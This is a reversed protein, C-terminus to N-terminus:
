FMRSGRIEGVPIKLDEENAPVVDSFDNDPNWSNYVQISPYPLRETNTLYYITGQHSVNTGATHRQNSTSLNPGLPLMTLEPTTVVLVSSFKYGLAEFVEKSVFGVRQNEAILYVTPDSVTKVLAGNGPTLNAGLPVLLDSATANRADKFEFGHSFLIGPNSIGRKTSGEILYFTGNDNILRTTTSGPTPSEPTPTIPTEPVPTITPTNQLVVSNEITFTAGSTNSAVVKLTHTGNSYKTTDLSLNYPATIDESLLVGDLYLSVKATTASTTVQVPLDVVGSLTTSPLQLGASIPILLSSGSSSGSPAPQGYNYNGSGYPGPGYTGPDSAQVVLSPSFLILVTLFGFFLKTTKLRFIM